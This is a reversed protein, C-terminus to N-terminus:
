QLHVRPVLRLKVFRSIVNLTLGALEARCSEAQRFRTPPM